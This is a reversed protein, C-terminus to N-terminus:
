AVTEIPAPPRPRKMGAKTGVKSHSTLTTTKPTMAKTKLATAKATVREVFALANDRKSHVYAAFARLGQVCRPHAWCSLPDSLFECLQAPDVHRTYTDPLDKVGLAERLVRLCSHKKPADSSRCARPDSWTCRSAAVRNLDSLLSLAATWADEPVGTPSYFAQLKVDGAKGCLKCRHGPCSPPPTPTKPLFAMHLVIADKTPVSLVVPTHDPSSVGSFNLLLPRVNLTTEPATGLFHSLVTALTPPSGPKPAKFSAAHPAFSTPVPSCCGKPDSLIIHVPSVAGGGASPPVIGSLELSLRQIHIDFPASASDPRFHNLVAQLSVFKPSSTDAHSSM